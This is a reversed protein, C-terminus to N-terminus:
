GFNIELSVDNCRLPSLVSFLMEEDTPFRAEIAAGRSFPQFSEYLHRVNFSWIFYSCSAQLYQCRPRLSLGSSLRLVAATAMAVAVLSETARFDHLIANHCTNESSTIRGADNLQSAEKDCQPQGNGSIPSKRPTANM